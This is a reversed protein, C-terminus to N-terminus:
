PRWQYSFYIQRYPLGFQETASTGILPAYNAATAYSNLAEPVGEGELGAINAWQNFLNYVAVTFTGRAFLPMGVQLNTFSYAPLNKTNNVAVWYYALRASVQGITQDIAGNFTHLPVGKIQSGPIYQLNSELFPAPANLLSSSTLAWDYDVFTGHLAHWRGSLDFGKARETGANANGTVGLQYNNAGCVGNLVNQANAIEQPTLFGTGTQSLPVLTSLIKNYVNVNYLQLQAISGDSWSHGYALEADVGREPQLISSPASGISNLGGCVIDSGGGAGPKMGDALASGVFPQDIEDSTPETTTAGFAARLTDHPTVRDVVSLRPDIYSSDTATAHKAWLNLYATLPGSQPHYVDRVFFSTESTVPYSQTESTTKITEYEYVNNLYSYGAQIENDRAVFDDSLLGGTSQVQSTSTKPKDSPLNERYTEDNYLTTFGDLDILGAGAVHKVDLDQYGFYFNQWAPGSGQWGQELTAYQSPTVCGTTQGGVPTGYGKVFFQGSPCTTGAYGALNANGQALATDYPLYDGDGNGTKNEWYSSNVTTFTASTAADFDYRLKGIGAHSAVASDDRYIADNYIASGAPASPDATAGVQYFYANRFPGDLGSAGYGLVYHLKDLSGSATVGTSLRQFTGFGQTVSGSQQPTPDLTQFNVIGGIANVGLINSGGSGYLVQVNRFPFVPSLQENYGGKIGYGVPHGDLTTITEPIGIGRINLNIDDGLAATDGNIGNNVGPLVRLADGVRTVGDSQLQEANLTNTYTSSQITNAYGRVATEAIVHLDGNGKQLSITASVGSQGVVITDTVAPQYGAHSVRLRYSGSALSAFAFEGKAGTTTTQSRGVIGVKAGAVATGSEADLVFGRLAPEAARVPQACAFIAYLFAACLARARPLLM